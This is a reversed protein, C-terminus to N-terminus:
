KYEGPGYLNVSYVLGNPKDKNYAVADAESEFVMAPYPQSEKVSEQLQPDWVYEVHSQTVVYVIRM